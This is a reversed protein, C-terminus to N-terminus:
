EERRQHIAKHHLKALEIPVVAGCLSCTFNIGSREKPVEVEQGDIKITM